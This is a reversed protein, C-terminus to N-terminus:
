GSLGLTALLQSAKAEFQDPVEVRHVLAPKGAILETPTALRNLTLTSPIREGHLMKNAITAKSVDTFDVIM